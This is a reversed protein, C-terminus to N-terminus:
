KGIIKYAADRISMDMQKTQDADLSQTTKNTSFTGLVYLETGKPIISYLATVTSKGIQCSTFAETGSDGDSKSGSLFKGKCSKGGIDILMASADNITFNNVPNIIKLTGIEKTDTWAADASLKDAEAKDLIRYGTIGAVSLVNALFGTAEARRDGNSETSVSETQPVNPLFPNSTQVPPPAMHNRACQLLAPLLRSTDTLVFRLVQGGGFVTLLRGRRFVNFLATSDSLSVGVETPSIAVAMANLTPIRDVTFGIPYKNGVRFSWAPDAFGMSWSYNKHVAFLMVINSRYKTSAACHSFAGTEDNSYAGILWNGISYFRGLLAANAGSASFGALLSIAFLFRKM